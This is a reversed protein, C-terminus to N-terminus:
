DDWQPISSNTVPARLQTGPIPYWAQQNAKESWLNDIEFGIRTEWVLKGILKTKVVIIWSPGSNYVVVGDGRWITPKIDFGVLEGRSFAEYEGGNRRYWAKRSEYSRPHHGPKWYNSRVAEKFEVSNPDDNLWRGPIPRGGEPTEIWPANDGNATINIAPAIDYCAWDPKYEALREADWPLLEAIKGALFVRAKVKIWFLGKSASRAKEFSAIAQAHLEPPVGAKTLHKLYNM